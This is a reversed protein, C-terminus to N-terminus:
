VPKLKLVEEVATIVNSVSIHQMCDLRQNRYEFGLNLYGCGSVDPEVSKTFPGLPAWRVTSTPGNLGVTPTGLAAALHMIGTNVSIVALAAQLLHATQGLNLQGAVNCLSPSVSPAAQPILDIVEQNARADTATGTLVISYGQALLHRALEVWRDRPWERVWSMYGGPWLHFVVCQNLNLSSLAGFISDAPKELSVRPPRSPTVDLRRILNRYNELEHISNSHPVPIDYGFHRFQGRTQFGIVCRAGSLTALLADIRPWPGFDILVDLSISRLIRLTSLPSTVEIRRINEEKTIFAATQYNTVGAFIIVEAHPYRERLDGLIGSLLVTDGICSTRLLGISQPNSPVRRKSRFFGCILVAPIGVAADLFRLLSNGRQKM